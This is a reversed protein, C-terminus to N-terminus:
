LPVTVTFVEDPVTDNWTLRVIPPPVGDPESSRLELEKLKLKVTPEGAGVGCVIVTLLLPDGTLKVADAEDVGLPKTVTEGVVKDFVGALRVTVTFVAARVGGM